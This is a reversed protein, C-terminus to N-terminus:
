QGLGAEVQALVENVTSQGTFANVEYQTILLNIENLDTPTLTARGNETLSGVVEAAQPSGIAEAWADLAEARSPVQSRSRAVAEQAEVSTMAAIAAFAADKDSCSQTVAFGTGAIYGHSVGTDVPVTAIGVNEAGLAERHAALAWLGNMSMAAQGTNFLDMDPFSGGSAELASAVEHENVLDVLFQFREALAPESLTPQRDEDVYSEGNATMLTAIPTIGQGIAFGDVGDSTTAEAAALFDETAWNLEPEDAGAEQFLEKNYFVVTPTADYPLAYLEGDVSLQEIMAHDYADLDAGAADALPGLPELASVYPNVQGNQLTVICPADSGSLITPLKTYFDGIPPGSFTVSVDSDAEAGADIYAQWQERDSDGGIWTYMQLSGDQVGSEGSSGGGSCAALAGSLAVVATVALSRRVRSGSRGGGSTRNM